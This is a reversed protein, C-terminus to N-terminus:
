HLRSHKLCETEKLLIVAGESMSFKVFKFLIVEEIVSTKEHLM